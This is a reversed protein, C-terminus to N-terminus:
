SIEYDQELKAIKKLWYLKRNISVMNHRVIDGSIYTDGLPLITSHKLENALERAYEAIDDPVLPEQNFYNDNM